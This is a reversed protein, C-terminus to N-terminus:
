GGPGREPHARRPIRLTITGDKTERTMAGLDADAPLAVYQRISGSAYSFSRQYGRGDDFTGEQETRSDTSRSIDLSRGKPTVQVEDTKGDSVLIRVLYADATMERTVNLRVRSREGGPGYSYSYGYGYPNGDSPAYSGPGGAQADPVDQPPVAAGPPAQSTSAPASPPSQAEGQATPKAEVPQDQPAPNGRQPGPGPYGAPPGMGPYSWPPPFGGYGPPGYGPPPGPMWALALAPTAAVLAVTIRHKSIPM